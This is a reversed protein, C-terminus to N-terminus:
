SDRYLCLHSYSGTSRDSRRGTLRLHLLGVVRGAEEPMRLTHLVGAGRPQGDRRPQGGERGAGRCSRACRCKSSRARCPARIGPVAAIEDPVHRPSLETRLATKLEKALTEDLERGEALAVYLLLQGEQGLRGTDIVLSDAIADFREVVRYFESTGMRVGGRNLTSDSRGYIVSGGDPLIKIWDGHRWVGPYEEFYSERYRHGDPDNWFMVPMSPMPATIVLEGVEGTVPHGSPDFAEVRAGPFPVPHRGGPGAADQGRRRFRHLRRHRRLVLRAPGGGVRRRLGLRLGRAPAPFRDLRHGEARLPGAAELGAKMSAVIYPRRHRLLDRGGRRRPGVPRGHSPHAASGDYLVVTSGVLLGGILYNWMMWGTTTYWFFRDGEGLDQHFTLSKLHEM